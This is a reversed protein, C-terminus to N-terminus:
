AKPCLTVTRLRLRLRLMRPFLVSIRGSFTNGQYLKKIELILGSFNLKTMRKSSRVKFFVFLAFFFIDIKYWLVDNFRQTARLTHLLNAHLSYSRLINNSFVLWNPVYIFVYNLEFNVNAVSWSFILASLLAFVLVPQQFTLYNFWSFYKFMLYNHENFLNVM